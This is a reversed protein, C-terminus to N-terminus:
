RRRKKARRADALRVKAAGVLTKPLMSVERKADKHGREAKQCLSMAAAITPNADPKMIGILPCGHVAAPHALLAPAARCLEPVLSGSGIIRAINSGLGGGLVDHVGEKIAYGAVEVMHKRMPTGTTALRISGGRVVPPLKITTRLEGDQEWSDVKGKAWGPLSLSVPSGGFGGIIMPAPLHPYVVDESHFDELHQLFQQELEELGRELRGLRFEVYSEPTDLRIVKPQPIAAAFKQRLGEFLPLLDTVGAGLITYSRRRSPPAAFSGIVPGGCVIGSVAMPPPALRRTQARRLVRRVGERPDIHPMAPPTPAGGYIDDFVISPDYTM